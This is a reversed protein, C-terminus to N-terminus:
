FKFMGGLASPNLTIEIVGCNTNFTLKKPLPNAAKTPQAISKPTSAVVSVKSCKVAAQAASTISVLTSVALLAVVAASARKKSIM